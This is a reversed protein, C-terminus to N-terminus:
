HGKAGSDGLKVQDKKGKKLYPREIYDQNDQLENHVGPGSTVSGDAEAEQTRPNFTRAVM